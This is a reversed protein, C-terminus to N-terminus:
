AVAGGTTGGDALTVPPSTNTLTTLRTRIQRLAAQPSLTGALTGGIASGMVTEFDSGSGSFWGDPDYVAADASAAYNSQPSMKKYAESDRFPLWAPVHGGAAWTKSQSLMSKAFTLARDLHEQQHAPQKPVVLTHSDAQV